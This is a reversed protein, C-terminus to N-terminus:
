DGEEDLIRQIAEVKGSAHDADTKLRNFDERLDKVAAEVKALKGGFCYVRQAYSVKM